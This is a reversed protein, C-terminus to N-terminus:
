ELFETMVMERTFILSANSASHQVTIEFLRNSTTDVASTGFIAAEYLGEANKTDRDLSGVGATAGTSDSISIRGGMKQSNAAGANFLQLDFVVGRRNVSIPILITTGVTEDYLITGGLKVRIRLTRVSGSNNLYTGFFRVRVGKDTGLKNADITFGYVQTEATSSAVNLAALVRNLVPAGAAGTPGTAGTLGTDGTPGTPGSLGTPGPVTSDAGTPGTPGTVGAPGSPGTAGTVGTPGTTGLDGKAALLEWFTPSTEPNNGQNSNQLSIYTQGNFTVIDNENYTDGSQWGGPLFDVGPGTPGTPGTAGTLGTDGTPGTPGSLGTPGPVTSDAGTLGTAGTVGAPGSPGTAGTVGTVGAPGSPGTAGTVGTPGTTGLDGKAALEKWHSGNDTAPDVGTSTAVAIWTAGNRTVVDNIAYTTGSDWAGQSTMGVPGTPGTAGPGGPRAAQVKLGRLGM